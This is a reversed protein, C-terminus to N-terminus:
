QCVKYSYVTMNLHDTIYIDVDLPIKVLDLSEFSARNRIVLFILCKVGMVSKFGHVLMLNHTLIGVSCSIQWKIKILISGRGALEWRFISLRKGCLNIVLIPAM